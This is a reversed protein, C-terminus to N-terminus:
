ARAAARAREAAACCDSIWRAARENVVIGPWDVTKLLRHVARPPMTIQHAEALWKSMAKLSMGAARQARAEAILACVEAPVIFEGEESFPWSDIM